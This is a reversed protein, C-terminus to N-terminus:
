VKAHKYLNIIILKYLDRRTQENMKEVQTKYTKKDSSNTYTLIMHALIELHAPKRLDFQVVGLKTLEYFLILYKLSMDKSKKILSFDM